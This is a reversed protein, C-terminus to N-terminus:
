HYINGGAQSSKKALCERSKNFIPPLKVDNILKCELLLVNDFFLIDSAQITKIQSCQKAYKIAISVLERIM